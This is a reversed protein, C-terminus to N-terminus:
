EAYHYCNAHAMEPPAVSSPKELLLWHPASSIEHIRRLCEQRQRM